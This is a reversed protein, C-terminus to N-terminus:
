QIVVNTLLVEDVALTQGYAEVAGVLSDRLSVQLANMDDLEAQVAAQDKGSFHKLLANRIVSTMAKAQEPMRPDHSVLSLELMMYHQTRSKALSVVFKDLNQFIPKESMQVPPPPPEKFLEELDLHGKSVAWAAGGGVLLLLVLIASLMLVWTKNIAGAQRNSYM